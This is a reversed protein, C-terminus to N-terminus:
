KFVIFSNVLLTLYVFYFWEITPEDNFPMIVLFSASLTAVTASTGIQLSNKYSM